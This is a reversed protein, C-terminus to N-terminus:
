LGRICAEENIQFSKGPGLASGVKAAFAEPEDQATSEPSMYIPHRLAAEGSTRFANGHPGMTDLRLFAKFGCPVSRGSAGGGDTSAAM